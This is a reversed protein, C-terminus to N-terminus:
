DNAWGPRLAHVIGSEGALVAEEICASLYLDQAGQAADYFSPGGDVYAAMRRMCEAVAIEDDTMRSGPFPNQYYWAGDALYGKLGCGEMNEVQGNTKRSLTAEMPTRHDLLYRIDFNDIIGREGKILIQQTRVWSRHQNDEFDFIGTKGGGFDLVAITQQETRIEERETPGTRLFGPVGRVSFRLARVTVPDFGVGLYKRMLSVAHYNNTLSIRAQVIDGLKGSRVFALRAMHDPRLFYQEALQYKAGKPMRGVFSMLDDAKDAVPTEALVAMGLHLLSLSVEAAAQKSVSVVMYRPAHAALLADIGSYCPVGFTATIQQSRAANTTVVGCVAFEQPCLAAVRLFFEARWGSGVIGIMSRM